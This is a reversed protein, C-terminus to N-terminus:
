LYSNSVLSHKHSIGFAHLRVTYWKNANTEFMRIVRLILIMIICLIRTKVPLQLVFVFCFLFVFYGRIQILEERESYYRTDRLKNLDKHNRWWEWCIVVERSLHQLLVESTQHIWTDLDNLINRIRNNLISNETYRRYVITSIYTM